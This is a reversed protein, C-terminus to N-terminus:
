GDKVGAEGQDWELGLCGMDFAQRNAEAFRRPSREEVGRWVQEVSLPLLGLGALAGLMLVNLTRSVGIRQVLSPGDVLLLKGAAARIPALLQDRDPYPLGQQTMGLPPLPGRNILVCTRAGIVPLTRLAELPEFGVVIDASGGIIFSADAPGVRMTCEVSGGRQSMGHLQGLVVPLGARHAAAGLMKAATLVGQGGVGVLLVQHCREVSM